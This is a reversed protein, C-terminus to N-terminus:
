DIQQLMVTAFAVLVLKVAAFAVLLLWCIAAYINLIAHFM